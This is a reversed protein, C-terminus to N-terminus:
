RRVEFDGIGISRWIGRGEEQLGEKIGEGGGDSMVERISKLALTGV